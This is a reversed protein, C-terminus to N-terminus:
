SLLTLRTVQPKSIDKIKTFYSVRLTTTVVRKVGNPQFDMIAIRRANTTVAICRNLNNNNSDNNFVSELLM